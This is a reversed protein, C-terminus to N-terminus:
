LSHYNTLRYCSTNLNTYAQSPAISGNELFDVSLHKDYPISKVTYYIISQIRFGSFESNHQRSSRMEEMFDQVQNEIYDDM